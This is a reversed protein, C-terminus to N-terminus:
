RGLWGFHLAHSIVLHKGWELSQVFLETLGTMVNPHQITMNFANLDSIVTGKWTTAFRKSIGVHLAIFCAFCTSHIHRDDHQHHLFHLVAQDMFFSRQCCQNLCRCHFPINIWMLYSKSLRWIVFLEFQDIIIKNDSIQRCMTYSNINRLLCFWWWGVLVICCCCCSCCCCSGCCCCCCCCLEMDM